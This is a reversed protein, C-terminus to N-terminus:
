QLGRSPKRAHPQNRLISAHRCLRGHRSNLDQQRLILITMELPQGCLTSLGLGTEDALRQIKEEAGLRGPVLRQEAEDPLRSSGAAAIDRPHM